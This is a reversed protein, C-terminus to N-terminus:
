FFKLFNNQACGHTNMDRKLAATNKYIINITGIDFRMTETRINVFM